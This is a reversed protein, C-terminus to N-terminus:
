RKDLEDLNAIRFVPTGLGALEGKHDFRKTITGSLPAIIACDALKKRAAELQAPAQDCRAQSAALTQQAVTFRTQADELQKPTISNTARLEEMRRLDDRANKLIAKAQADQAEAAAYNAQSQRLQIRYDTPEIIALTDGPKVASGEDALLGIIQGGVKASVTVETSEITGSATLEHDSSTSCGPFIVVPTILATGYKSKM